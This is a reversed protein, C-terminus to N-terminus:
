KVLVFTYSRPMRLRVVLLRLTARRLRLWVLREVLTEPM